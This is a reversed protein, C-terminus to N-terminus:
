RLVSVSGTEPVNHEESYRITSLIVFGLLGSHRVGDDSGKLMKTFTQQM